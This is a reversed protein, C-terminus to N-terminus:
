ATNANTTREDRLPRGAAHVMIARLPVRFWNVASLGHEIIVSAEDGAEDLMGIVWWECDMEDLPRIVVADETIAVYPSAM